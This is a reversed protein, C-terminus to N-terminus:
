CSIRVVYTLTHYYLGTASRLPPQPPRTLLAGMGGHTILVCLFFCLKSTLFELFSFLILSIVFCKYVVVSVVKWLVNNKLLNIVFFGHNSINLSNIKQQRCCHILNYTEYKVLTLWVINLFVQLKQISKDNM